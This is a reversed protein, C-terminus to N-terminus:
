VVSKGCRVIVSEAHRRGTALNKSLCLRCISFFWSSFNRSISDTAMKMCTDLLNQKEHQLQSIIQCADPMTNILIAVSDFASTFGDIAIVVDREANTEDKGNKGRCGNTNGSWDEEREASELITTNGHRDDLLKPSSDDDRSRKNM